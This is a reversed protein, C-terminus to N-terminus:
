TKGDIAQRILPKSAGSWVSAQYMVLERGDATVITFRFVKTTDGAENLWSLGSDGKGRPKASGKWFGTAELQPLKDEVLLEASSGTVDEVKVSRPTERKKETFGFAYTVEKAKGDLMFGTVEIKVDPNETPIAGGRAIPLEITQGGAITFTRMSSTTSCGCLMATLAILPYCISKMNKASRELHNLMKM